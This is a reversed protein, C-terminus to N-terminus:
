KCSENEVIFVYLLIYPLPLAMGTVSRPPGYTQSVDLSGYKRYLRSVSPPLATLRVRRSGNTGGGLLNRTSMETLPQTSGLTMTRSSLNTWNFYEIAQNPISGAAKRSTAYMTGWGVVGGRAGLSYSTFINVPKVQNLIPVMPSCKHFSCHLKQNFLIPFSKQGDSYKVNERSYREEM